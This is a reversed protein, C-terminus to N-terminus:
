SLLDSVPYIHVCELVPIGTLALLTITRLGRLSGVEQCWRQVSYRESIRRRVDALIKDSYLAPGMERSAVSNRLELELFEFGVPWAGIVSVVRRMCLDLQRTTIAASVRLQGYLAPALEPQLPVVYVECHYDTAAVLSALDLHVQSAGACIPIFFLRHNGTSNFRYVARLISQVLQPAKQIEDLVLFRIQEGTGELNAIIDSCTAAQTIQHRSLDSHFSALVKAFCINNFAVRAEPSIHPSLRAWEEHIEELAIYSFGARHGNKQCVAVSDIALQLATRSKGRGISGLLLYFELLRKTISGTSTASAARAQAIIRTFIQNSFATNVFHFAFNQLALILAVCFTLCVPLNSRNWDFACQALSFEPFVPLPLVLLFWTISNIHV